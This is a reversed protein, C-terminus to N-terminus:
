EEIISTRTKWTRSGDRKMLLTFDPTLRIGGFESNEYFKMVTKKYLTPNDYLANIHAYGVERACESLDRVTFDKVQGGAMGAHVTIKCLSAFSSSAFFLTSRLILGTKKM